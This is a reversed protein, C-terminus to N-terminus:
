TSSFTLTSVFFLVGQIMSFFAARLSSYSRHAPFVVTGSRISHIQLVDLSAGLLYDPGEDKSTVM